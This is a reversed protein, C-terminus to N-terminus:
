RTGGVPHISGTINRRLEQHLAFLLTLADEPLPLGYRIHHSAAVRVLLSDWRGTEILVACLGCCSWDGLSMADTPTRFDRAPLVFEAGPALCFDCHGRWDPGAEVPVPDHDLVAAWIPHVWSAGNEDTRRDLALDCVQCIIDPRTM